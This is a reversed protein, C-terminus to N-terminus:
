YVGQLLRLYGNQLGGTTQLAFWVMLPFEIDVCKKVIQDLFSTPLFNKLNRQFFLQCVALLISIYISYVLNM